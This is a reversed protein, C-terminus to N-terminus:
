NRKLKDVIRNAENLLGEIDRLYNEMVVLGNKIKRIQVKVNRKEIDSTGYLRTNHLSAELEDSARRLIEMNKRIKDPSELLRRFQELSLITEDSYGKLKLYVYQSLHAELEIPSLSYEGLERIISAKRYKDSFRVMANDLPIFLPFKTLKSILYKPISEKVGINRPLASSVQQLLHEYEHVLIMALKPTSDIYKCWKVIDADNKPVSSSTLSSIDVVIISRKMSGRPYFSAWSDYRKYNKLRYAPSITMLAVDVDPIDTMVYEPRRIPVQTKLYNWTKPFVVSLKAEIWTKIKEKQVYVGLAVIYTCFAEFFRTYWWKKFWISGNIRKELLMLVQKSGVLFSGKENTLTIDEFLEKIENQNDWIFNGSLQKNQSDLFFWMEKVRNQSEKVELGNM